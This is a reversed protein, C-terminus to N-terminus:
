GDSGDDGGDFRENAPYLRRRTCGLSQEMLLCKRVLGNATEDLFSLSPVGEAVGEDGDVGAGLGDSGCDRQGVGGRVHLEQFAM